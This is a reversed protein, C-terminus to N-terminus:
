IVFVGVAACIAAVAGAVTGFLASLRGFSIPLKGYVKETHGNMAFTYSKGKREYNLIWIPMIAYEWSSRKVNVRVRGPEVSSYGNVTRRLITSAYSDMRARVEGTLEDREIDRKKAVYGLLYPMSFERLADSPYPLIGELMEKDAETLASTVIDEFHIDARRYISYDSVETYRKDGSSWRRVRHAVTNYTSDTDADTVWFPFYVGSIKDATEAAFFDRPVLWKKKSFALFKKKAEEKDFAFPIVSSPQLEGSLKGELVIPNHCFACIDAATSDDATVKAGCSPCYYVLMHACFEESKKQEDEALTRADTGELETEEFDSLCFECVFKQKDADFLLGAGCNPCKYTITSSM